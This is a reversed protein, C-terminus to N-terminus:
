VLLHIRFTAHRREVLGTVPVLDNLPRLRPWGTHSVLIEDFLPGREVMRAGSECIQQLADQCRAAADVLRKNMRQTHAGNLPPEMGHFPSLSLMPAKPWTAGQKSLGRGDAQM